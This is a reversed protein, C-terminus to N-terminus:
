GREGNAQGYPKDEKFKLQGNAWRNSTAVIAAIFEDGQGFAVQRGLEGDTTLIVLVDGITNWREKVKVAILYRGELDPDHARMELYALADAQRAQKRKLEAQYRHYKDNEDQEKKSSGM